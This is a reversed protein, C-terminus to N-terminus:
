GARLDELPPRRYAALAPALALIASASFVAAALQIEPWGPAAAVVLDTRAAVLASIAGATAWGVGLGLACGVGVLSAAYTWVVGLVFRRPAGLARLLAFRRAFLRALAVLGALVGAAALAQTVLAMLSMAERADGLASNLRALTAGPFFAMAGDRDHRARIAYADALTRGNVAFAPVGPFYAPDFPPGLRGAEEPRHGPALGHIEWIAEVPVLIARDWPGGTPAMRGVVAFAHGEHAHDDAADGEGHAPEIEQGLALPVRAGIVAEGHAAWARGEALPGSLREVFRTVTGVVPAGDFSDGFAIPAALDIRPDDQLAKLVAGGVLAPAPAPQLYVTTLLARVEDGPAAVVVDFKAVARAAGQRLAREQSLLAGGLGVSVAMLAVFLLNTWRFRLLLARALPWPAQGRLALAGPLLAPALLALAIAADQVGPPLARWADCLLDPLGTM